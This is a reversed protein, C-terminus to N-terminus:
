LRWRERGVGEHGGGSLIFKGNATARRPDFLNGNEMGRRTGGHNLATRGNETGM